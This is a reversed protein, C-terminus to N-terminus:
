SIRNREDCTSDHPFISGNEVSMSFCNNSVFVKVKKGKPQVVVYGPPGQPQPAYPSYPYTGPPTYPSTYQFPTPQGPYGMTPAASMPPTTPGIIITSGSRKTKHSRHSRSSHRSPSSSRHRRPSPGPLMPGPFAHMGPGSHLSDYSSSHSDHLHMPGMPAAMQPSTPRSFGNPLPMPGPLQPYVGMPQFQGEMTPSHVPSSHPAMGMGMSGPFLGSSSGLGRDRHHAPSHARHQHGPRPTSDSEGAETPPVFPSKFQHANAETNDVWRSIRQQTAIHREYAEPSYDYETM